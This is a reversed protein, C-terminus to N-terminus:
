AARMARQKRQKGNHIELKKKKSNWSHLPPPTDFDVVVDVFFPSYNRMKSSFYSGVSLFTASADVSGGVSGDHQDSM